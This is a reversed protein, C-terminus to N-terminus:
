LDFINKALGKKHKIIPIEKEGWKDLYSGVNDGDEVDRASEGVHGLGLVNKGDDRTVTIKRVRKTEM